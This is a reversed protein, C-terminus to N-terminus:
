GDSFKAELARNPVGRGIKNHLTWNKQM